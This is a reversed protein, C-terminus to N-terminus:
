AVKEAIRLLASRSRPNQKIEEEDPKLPKKLLPSMQFTREIKDKRQIFRKVVRDELSHFSIIVLRGGSRLVRGAAELVSNLEELENNIKMRIARFVKTAPHRKGYRPKCISVIETLDKTSNIPKGVRKNCIRKAIKRSFREQGLEWFVDEIEKRPATNIWERATIGEGQNLRMDLPGSLQFSFGRNPDDLQRSSLGLDLLVGDVSEPDIYDSLQSFNCNIIKFRKDLSFLSEALRVSSPDKDIAILGGESKLSELIAKSHGGTGFTCDVYNGDKNIVLNEVVERIMVAKHM